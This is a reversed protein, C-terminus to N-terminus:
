AKAPLTWHIVSGGGWPHPGTELWIRGGHHEVIKRCLALGIGTGPYRDKPHLRQFIVFVREAYDAEIGIGNDICTFHWFEGEREAALQVRPAADPTRFKVANGILNQFLQTLLTADGPLTPLERVEIDAHTEALTQELASLAHGLSRATDVAETFESSRGVRSFALLDIILQQMRTAGDVAFEIYQDAREDLQGSYRKQLLQCFSAVKRLPEQLDHSAVYAFQELEENSRRLEGAQEALEASQADLAEAQARIEAEARRSSYLEAVIRSRMAEVDDALAGFEGPGRVTVTQEFHGAAGGRTLAILHAVPRLVLRRLAFWLGVAALAVLLFATAGVMRLRTLAGDLRSHGTNRDVSIAMSLADVKARLTDFRTKGLNAQISPQQGAPAAKAAAIAPEAYETRWADSAATVMGLAAGVRADPLYSRIAAVAATSAALGNQYPELFSEDHSLLYGRVGTEEDLYAETLAASQVTAPSVHDVLARADSDVRNLALLSLFGGVVLVVGVILLVVRLRARLTVGYPNV